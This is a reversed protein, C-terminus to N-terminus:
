IMDQRLKFVEWPKGADESYFGFDVGEGDLGFFIERQDWSKVVGDRKGRTM